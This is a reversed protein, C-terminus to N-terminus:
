KAGFGVLVVCGALLMGFTFVVPPEGRNLKRVMPTYFAHAICGFFFIIEGQGIRFALFAQWDARFIVWLAGCGGLTLAAAM